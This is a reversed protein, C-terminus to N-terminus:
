TTITILTSASIVNQVYAPQVQSIFKAYGYSQLFLNAYSIAADSNAKIVPINISAESVANSVQTLQVLQPSSLVTTVAAITTADPTSLLVDVANLLTLYQTLPAFADAFMTQAGTTGNLENYIENAAKQVPLLTRMQSLLNNVESNASNLITDISTGIEVVNLLTSSLLISVKSSLSSSVVSLPNLFGGGSALLNVADKLLM